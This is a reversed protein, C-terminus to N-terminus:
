EVRGNKYHVTIFKGLSGDHQVATKLSGQLKATSGIRSLGNALLCTLVIKAKVSVDLLAYDQGMLRDFVTTNSNALSPNLYRAWDETAIIPRQPFMPLAFYELFEVLNEQNVSGSNQFDRSGAYILRSYGDTTPDLGVESLVTQSSGAFTSTNLKSTGWGAGLNCMLVEQTTNTSERPLLIVAGIATGNFPDQPLEIWRLRNESVSGPTKLIESRTIGTYEFADFARNEIFLVSDNLASTNLMQATSGPPLPFFLPKSDDPGYIIDSECSVVTYPQYYDTTISHVADLQTLVSGHGKTTVNTLALSWLAAVTTLADAVAAQQTTAVALVDDFGQKRVLSTQDNIYLRRLSNASTLEVYAPSELFNYRLVYEPPILSYTFSLYTEIAQWGSSPCDNAVLLPDSIQCEPSVLSGNTSTVTLIKSTRCSSTFSTM